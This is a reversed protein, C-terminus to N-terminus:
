KDNLSNLIKDFFSVLNKRKYKAEVEKTIFITLKDLSRTLAVYLRNKTTTDDAKEGLLYAALDTTLIFVCNKGEQGKINDISNVVVKEEDQTISNDPLMNIIVGYAKKGLTEHKFTENMAKMKDNTTAYNELLFEAYYYSARLMVLETKDPHLKRMEREIEESLAIHISKSTEKGHTEYKGHKKSIYSLDFNEEKILESYPKDNEFLIAILGGDKESYQQEKKSVISNSLVLHKKPCRHCVSIYDVSEKNKEILSKLCKHGKLDQKPDGMLILPIGLENLTEIILQMDSNIDQAEDICIGGCYEKFINKIVKRKDSVAKRDDSKKAVIWKAREPIVTQHLINGEELRSIKANKYGPSPPLPAISIREYQKGYLLYYYPKIFERYLFSHITSVIINNPIIGYYDQLKQEICSVANNTFTICFIHKSKDTGERLRVITDVMATTKGAGAGAIGILM